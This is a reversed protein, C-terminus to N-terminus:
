GFKPSEEVSFLLGGGGAKRGPMVEGFWGLILKLGIM